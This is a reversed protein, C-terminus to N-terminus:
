LDSILRYRRKLSSSITKARRTINKIKKMDDSSAQGLYISLDSRFKRLLIDYGWEAIDSCDIYSDTELYERSEANLRIHLDRLYPFPFVNPNIETNIFLFGVSNIREDVGIILFRKMKAPRTHPLHLKLVSGSKIHDRAFNDKFSQPFKDGLTPTM